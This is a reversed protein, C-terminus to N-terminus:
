TAYPIGRNLGPSAPLVISTPNIDQFEAHPIITFISSVEGPVLTVTKSQAIIGSILLQLQATEPTNGSNLFFATIILQDTSNKRETSIIEGDSYYYNINTPIIDQSQIPEPIHNLSLTPGSLTAPITYIYEPELSQAKNIASIISTMAAIVTISTSIFKFLGLVVSRGNENENRSM